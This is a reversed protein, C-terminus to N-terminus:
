SDPPRPNSDQGTRWKRVFSRVGQVPGGNALVAQELVDKRGVIRIERDDVEVRDVLTGLYAKRFPVAGTTLKERMAQGFREVVIPNINVTPRVGSRARALAGQVRDRDAKLAFIRDKLIDDMEAVGDEMAKYLRRLRENAEHAERELTVIREDVASAKVARGSALSALMTGLRQPDLLRDALHGTVLTDLKDMRISRGKCVTKGQRACSSCTYYRHVKGSKSTGTRLTMAGHCSACVALGTLLIPGSVM